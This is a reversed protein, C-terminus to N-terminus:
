KRDPPDVEQAGKGGPHGAPLLLEDQAGGADHLARREGRGRLRRPDGGRQHGEVGAEGQPSSMM